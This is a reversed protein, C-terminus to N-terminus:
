FGKKFEKAAQRVDLEEGSLIKKNGKKNKNKEYVHPVYMTVFFLHLFHTFPALLYNIHFMFAVWYNNNGNHLAAFNSLYVSLESNMLQISPHNIEVRLAWLYMQEYSWAYYM